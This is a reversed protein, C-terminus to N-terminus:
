DDEDEEDAERQERTLRRDARVDYDDLIASVALVWRDIEEQPPLMEDMWVLHQAIQGNALSWTLGGLDAEEEDAVEVLFMPDHAHFVYWRGPSELGEGIIWEDRPMRPDRPEAM